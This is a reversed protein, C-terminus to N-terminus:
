LVQKLYDIVEEQCSFAKEIEFAAAPKEGKSSETMVFAPIQIIGYQDAKESFTWAVEYWDSEEYSLPAKFYEAEELDTGDIQMFDIMEYAKKSPLRVGTLRRDTDTSFEVWQTINGGDAEDADMSGGSEELTDYDEREDDMDKETVGALLTAQGIMMTTKIGDDWIINVEDILTDKKVPKSLYVDIRYTGYKESGGDDEIEVTFEADGLAPIEVTKLDQWNDYDYIYSFSFFDEEFWCLEKIAVAEKLDPGPVTRITCGSAACGALVVATLMVAIFKRNKKLM